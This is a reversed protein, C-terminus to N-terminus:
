WHNTESCETPVQELRTAQRLLDYGSVRIGRLGNRWVDGLVEMVRRDTVVDYGILNGIPPIDRPIQPYVYEYKKRTTEDDCDFPKLPKRESNLTVVLCREPAELVYSHPFRYNESTIGYSPSQTAFQLKILM